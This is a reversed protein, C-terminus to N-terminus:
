EKVVIITAKFGTALDWRNSSILKGKEDIVRFEATNPGSTGQNLAEFDIKNFGPQLVLDFGQFAGDLYIVERFVHDNVWVRIMDGDVFEHDRYSVSVTGSTTKFDGLYQNQRLVKYLEGDGRKNLKKAVADGPNVFEPKKSTFANDNEIVLSKSESPAGFISPPVDRPDAKPTEPLPVSASVPPTNTIPPLNLSNNGTDFQASVTMYFPLLVLLLLKKM